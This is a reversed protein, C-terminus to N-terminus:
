KKGHPPATARAPGDSVEEAKALIDTPFTWASELRPMVRRNIVLRLPVSYQVPMRSMDEEGLVRAALDGTERGVEYFDGGIALLVGRSATDPQTSFVPVGGKVGESVEVDIAIMVTLDPTNILAEAGKAVLSAVAEGVAPTSDVTAELLDLGLRSAAERAIQTYAESNAQSPNWVLGVRKLQPNMRKAIEMLEGLPALTVVGVMNKPHDFPDKPNLKVGAAAPDAVVGFVHKVRGDRNAKAIAQFCNTSVTFVYDFRGGTLERAVSNATPLDNEANFKQLQITRGEVYGHHRLADLMGRVGEDLISQSSYQFIAARPLSAAPRKGRNWDSILLIAAAAAILVLGMGLRRVIHWSQEM